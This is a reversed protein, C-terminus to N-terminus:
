RFKDAFFKSNLKYFTAVQMIGTSIFSVTPVTSNQKSIEDSMRFDGSLRFINLCLISTTKLTSIFSFNNLELLVYHPQCM